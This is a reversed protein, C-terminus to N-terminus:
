AEDLPSASHQEDLIPGYNATSDGGNMVLPAMKAVMEAELAGENNKKIVVEQTETQTQMGEQNFSRMEAMKSSESPLYHKMGYTGTTISSTKILQYAAIFGLVGVVPNTKMFIVVAVVAVLVKGFITDIPEALVTPTQVNLLIYLVFLIALILQSPNGSVLNDVSSKFSKMM